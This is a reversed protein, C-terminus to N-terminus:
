VTAIKKERQTDYGRKFSGVPDEDEMLFTFNMNLLKSRLSSSRRM